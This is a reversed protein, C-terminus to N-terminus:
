EAEVLEGSPTYMLEMWRNILRMNYEPNYPRNRNDEEEEEDDYGDDDYDYDPVDRAENCHSCYIRSPNTLTREGCIVCRPPEGIGTSSDFDGNDYAESVESAISSKIADRCFHYDAYHLNDNQYVFKNEARKPAKWMDTFGYITSVISHVARRIERSMDNDGNPYMRSQIFIKGSKHILFLQRYNKPIYYIKELHEPYEPIVYAVLTPKDVMYSLTGAQYCGRDEDNGVRHCSSWSNGESMRLYDGPNVSLVLFMNKSYPSISESYTGFYRNVADSSDLKVGVAELNKLIFRSSKMGVSPRVKFKIDAQEEYQAITEVSKETLNKDLLCDSSLQTLTEIVADNEGAKVYNVAEQFLRTLSRRAQEKDAGRTQKIPVIIALADEEWNPHTKMKTILPLKSEHWKKINTLIGIESYEMDKDHLVDQMAVAGTIQEHYEYNAM